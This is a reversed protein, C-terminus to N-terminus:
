FVNFKISFQMRAESIPALWGKILVSNLEIRVKIRDYLPQPSCKQGFIDKWFYHRNLDPSIQWFASNWDESFKCKKGNLLWLFKNTQWQVTSSYSYFRRWYQWWNYSEALTYIITGEKMEPCIIIGRNCIRQQSLFQIITCFIFFLLHGVCKEDVRTKDKIVGNSNNEKTTRIGSLHLADGRLTGAPLPPVGQLQHHNQDRLPPGRAWLEWAHNRLTARRQSGSVKAQSM